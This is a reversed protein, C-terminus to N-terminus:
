KNLDYEIKIKKKIKYSEIFLNKANTLNNPMSNNEKKIYDWHQLRFLKKCIAIKCKLKQNEKMQLIYSYDQAEGYWENLLLEHNLSACKWFCGFYNAITECKM